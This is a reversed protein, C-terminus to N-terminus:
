PKPLLVILQNYLFFLDIRDRAEALDRKHEPPGFSFTTKM